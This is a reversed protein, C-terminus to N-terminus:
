ITLTTGVVNHLFKDPFANLALAITRIGTCHMPAVIAPDSERLADITAAGRQRVRGIERAMRSPKADGSRATAAGSVFTLALAVVIWLM